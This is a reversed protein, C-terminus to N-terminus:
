RLYQIIPHYCSQEGDGDGNWEDNSSSEEEYLVYSAMMLWVGKREANPSCKSCGEIDCKVNTM